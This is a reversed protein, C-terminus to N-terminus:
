RRTEYVYFGIAFIVGLVIFAGREVDEKNYRHGAYEFCDPMLPKGRQGCGSDSSESEGDDVNVSALQGTSFVNLASVHGGSARALWRSWQRQFFSSPGIEPWWWGSSVIEHRAFPELKVDVIMPFRFSFDEFVAISPAFHIFDVIQRLAWLISPHTEAILNSGARLASTYFSDSDGGISRDNKTTNSVFINKASAVGVAENLVQSYWNSWRMMGIDFGVRRPVYGENPASIILFFFGLILAAAGTRQGAACRLRAGAHRLRVLGAKAWAFQRSVPSRTSRYESATKGEFDCTQHRQM